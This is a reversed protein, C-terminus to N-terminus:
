CLPGKAKEEPDTESEYCSVIAKILFVQLHNTFEDGILGGKKGFLLQPFKENGKADM